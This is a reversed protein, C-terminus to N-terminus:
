PTFAAVIEDFYNTRLTAGIAFVIGIIGVTIGAAVLGYEIAVGGREDSAFALRFPFRFRTLPASFKM